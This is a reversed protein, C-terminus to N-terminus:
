SCEYLIKYEDCCLNEDAYPFPLKECIDDYKVVNTTTNKRSIHEDYNQRNYQKSALTLGLGGGVSGLVGSVFKIANM